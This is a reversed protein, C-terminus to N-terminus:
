KYWWCNFCIVITKRAPVETIKYFGVLNEINRV